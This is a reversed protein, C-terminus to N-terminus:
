GLLRAVDAENLDALSAVVADAGCARLEAESHHAAFRV